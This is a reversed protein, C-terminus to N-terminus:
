ILKCRTEIEFEKHSWSHLHNFSFWVERYLPNNKIIPKDKIEVQPDGYFCWDVVCFQNDFERLYSLYGHGGEPATVEHPKVLGATVRVRFAPIGANIALSAMLIAGDECDGFGSAITEFPFQWHELAGQNQQDYIYKLNNCVWRQIMTEDHTSAKLNNNRIIEQLLEDNSAIMNRVDLKLGSLPSFQGCTGCKKSISRGSYIVKQKPHKENWFLELETNDM